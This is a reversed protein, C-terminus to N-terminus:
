LIIALLQCPKGDLALMVHPLSSDFYISDGEDLIMEKGGLIIKLRGKLVFNFEQGPHANMSIEASEPKPEVTVLFPEGKRNIFSHALSQYTYAKSREVGVGQDKRVLSYQHMHPDQGTLLVTLEVGYKRSINHLVSVPIDIKGSEFALYQDTTIGCAGAADEVSIDMVDRLGKLREAIQRIQEEM